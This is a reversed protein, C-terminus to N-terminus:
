SMRPDAPAPMFRALACKSSQKFSSFGRTIAIVLSSRTDLLLLRLCVRELISVATLAVPRVGIKSGISWVLIM